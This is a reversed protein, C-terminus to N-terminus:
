AFTRIIGEMKETSLSSSGIVFGKLIGIERYAKANDPDISGGYLIDFEKGPYLASLKNKITTYIRQLYPIDIKLNLGVYSSITAPSEYCIYIRKASIKDYRIDSFITDLQLSIESMIDKEDFGPNSEGVYLIIELDCELANKFKLNMEDFTEKFLVRRDYHGIMVGAAGAKKWIEASIEGTYPGSGPFKSINPAFVQLDTGKFIEVVSTLAIPNPCVILRAKPTYGSLRSVYEGALTISGALDLNMKWNALFIM